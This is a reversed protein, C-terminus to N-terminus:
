GGGDPRFSCAFIFVVELYAGVDIVYTEGTADQSGPQDTILYDWGNGSVIELLSRRVAESVVDRCISIHQVNRADPFRKLV